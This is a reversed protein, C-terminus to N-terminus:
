PIKEIDYAYGCGVFLLTLATSTYQMRRAVLKRYTAM